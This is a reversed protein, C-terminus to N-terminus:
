HAEYITQFVIKKELWHTKWLDLEAELAKPCLFDGKSLDAFVNFYEKWNVYKYVLSVMKSPIIVLGSYVSISAHDFRREIKVTFHDLLPIM